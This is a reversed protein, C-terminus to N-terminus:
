VSNVNVCVCLQNARNITLILRRNITENCLVLRVSSRHSFSHSWVTKPKSMFAAGTGLFFATFAGSPFSTTFNSDFYEFSASSKYSRSWCLHGLYLTIRNRQHLKNYIYTDPDWIYIDWIYTDWIYPIAAPLVENQYSSYNIIYTACKAWDLQQCLQVVGCHRQETPVGTSVSTHPEGIHGIRGYTGINELKDLDEGIHGFAVEPLFNTTRCDTWL